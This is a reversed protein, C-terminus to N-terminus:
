QGLLYYMQKSFVRSIGLLLKSSLRLAYPRSPEMIEDSFLLFVINCSCHIGECWIKMINISFYERKTLAISGAGDFNAAIRLNFLIHRIYLIFCAIVLQLIAHTKLSCTAGGL